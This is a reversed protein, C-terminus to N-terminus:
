WKAEPLLLSKANDTVSVYSETWATPAETLYVYM